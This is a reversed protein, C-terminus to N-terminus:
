EFHDEKINAFMCIEGVRATEREPDPDTTFAPSICIAM